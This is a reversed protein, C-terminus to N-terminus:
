GFRIRRRRPSIIQRPYSCILDPLQIFLSDNIVYSSDGLTSQRLALYRQRNAERLRDPLVFDPWLLFLVAALIIKKM